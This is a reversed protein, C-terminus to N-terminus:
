ELSLAESLDIEDGASWSWVELASYVMPSASLRDGRKGRSHKTQDSPLSSMCL